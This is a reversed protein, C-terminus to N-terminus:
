QHVVQGRVISFLVDELPQDTSLRVFAARQAACAEQLELTWAAFRDGYARLMEGNVVTTLMVGTECDVLDLPGELRPTSEEPALVQVVTPTLGARRLYSVAEAAGSPALLDSILVGVGRRPVRCYTGVATSLDLDGAAQLGNLVSLFRGIENKGRLRPLCQASAGRLMGVSVNDYHTLAICGLAAALRQMTRLKSPSGWAMSASCDLLLHLTAAETAETLRLTLEGLRAYVNWDILRFDDGPRYDRYDSFEVSHAKRRSAHEGAFGSTGSRSVRLSLHELQQLFASDLLPGPQESGSPTNWGQVAHHRLRSLWRM